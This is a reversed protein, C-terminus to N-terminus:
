YTKDAFLGKWEDFLCQNEDKMFHGTISIKSGGIKKLKENSIVLESFGIAKADEISVGYIIHSIGAWHCASFCMPCPECTSYLVAGSLDISNLKKCAKRIAHIEAHATIDTTAWVVNHEAVVLQDNKVIVAGVAPNPEVSGIGQQALKIANQMYKEDQSIM